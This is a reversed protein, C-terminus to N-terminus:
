IELRELDRTLNERQLELQVTGYYIIMVISKWLFDGQIDSLVLCNKLSEATYAENKIRFHRAFLFFALLEMRFNSAKKYKPTFKICTNSGISIQEVENKYLSFYVPLSAQISQFFICKNLM